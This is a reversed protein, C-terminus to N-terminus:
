KRKLGKPGGKKGSDNAGPGKGKGHSKVRSRVKNKAIQEVSKLENRVKRGKLFGEKKGYKNGKQVIVKSNTDKKRKIVDSLKKKQMRNQFSSKAKTSNTANERDGVKQFNITAHKKWQKYRDQMKEVRVKERSIQRHEENVVQGDAGIKKKKFAKKDEDWM